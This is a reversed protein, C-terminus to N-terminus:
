LAAQRTWKELQNELYEVGQISGTDPPSWNAMVNDKKSFPGKAVELFVLWNSRIILSHYQDPGITHFFPKGSEYTGLIKVDLVTGNESFTIYDVEGELVLMSEDRNIHKHPRIYTDRAHAIFMQHVLEDTHLHACFRARKRDNNISIEILSKMDGQTLEFRRKTAHFVEASQMFQKDFELAM